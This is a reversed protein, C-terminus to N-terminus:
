RLVNPDASLKLAVLEPNTGRKVMGSEDIFAHSFHHQPFDATVLKGSNCLTVVAHDPYETSKM